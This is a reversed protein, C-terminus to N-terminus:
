WTLLAEANKRASFLGKKDPDAYAEDTCTMRVSSCLIRGNVVSKKPATKGAACESFLGNYIHKRRQCNRKKYFPEPVHM